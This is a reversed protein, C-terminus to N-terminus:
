SEAIIEGSALDLMYSTPSATDGDVVMRVHQTGDFTVVVQRRTITTVGSSTLDLVTRTTLTGTM